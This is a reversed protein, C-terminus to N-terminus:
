YEFQIVFHHFLLRTNGDYKAIDEDIEEKKAASQVWVSGFREHDDFHEALYAFGTVTPSKYVSKQNDDDSADQDHVHIEDANIMFVSFILLGLTYIRRGAMM